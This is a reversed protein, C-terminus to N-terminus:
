DRRIVTLFHDRLTPSAISVPRLYRVLGPAAREPEGEDRGEAEFCNGCEYTFFGAAFQGVRVAVEIEEFLGAIEAVTNAVCVRVPATFLRTCSEADTEDNNAKSCELLVTAPTHEVLEYVEAPLSHRRSM